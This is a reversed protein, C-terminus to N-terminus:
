FPVCKHSGRMTLALIGQQHSTRQVLIEEKQLWEPSESNTTSTALPQPNLRADPAFGLDWLQLINNQTHTVLFRGGPILKMCVFGSYNSNEIGSLHVYPSLSSHISRTLVPELPERGFEKRLRTAFRQPATAVHELDLMAMNEFQYTCGFVHNDACVQRAVTIWVTRERSV